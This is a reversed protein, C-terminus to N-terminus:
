THDLSEGLPANRETPPIYLNVFYQSAVAYGYSGKTDFHLFANDHQLRLRTAAMTRHLVAQECTPTEVVCNEVLLVVPTVEKCLPAGGLASRSNISSDATIPVKYM